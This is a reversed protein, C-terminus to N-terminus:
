LWYAVYADNGWELEVFPAMNRGPTWTVKSKLVQVMFKKYRGTGAVEQMFDEYRKIEKPDEFAQTLSLTFIAM